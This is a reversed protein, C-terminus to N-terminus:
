VSDTTFTSDDTCKRELWLGRDISDAEIAQLFEGQRWIYAIFWVVYTVTSRRSMCLLFIPLLLMFAAICKPIPNENLIWFCTLRSSPSAETKKSRLLRNVSPLTHTYTYLFWDLRRWGRRANERCGKFLQHAAWWRESAVYMVPVM